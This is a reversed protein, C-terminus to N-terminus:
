GRSILSTRYQISADNPEEELARAGADDPYAGSLPAWRKRSLFAKTRGSEVTSFAKKGGIRGAKADLSPLAYRVGEYRGSEDYLFAVAHGDRSFWLHSEDFRSGLLVSPEGPADLSLTLTDYDGLPTGARFGADERKAICRGVTSTARSATIRGRRGTIINESSVRPPWGRDAMFVVALGDRLWM